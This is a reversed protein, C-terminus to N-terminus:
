SATVQTLCSWSVSLHTSPESNPTYIMKKNMTKQLENEWSASARSKSFSVHERRKYLCASASKSKKENAMGRSWGIKSLAELATLFRSASPGDSRDSRWTHIPTMLRDVAQYYGLLCNFLPRRRYIVGQWNLDLYGVPRWARLQHSGPVDYCHDM